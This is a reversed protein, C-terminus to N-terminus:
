TCGTPRNCVTPCRPMSSARATINWRSIPFSRSATPPASSCCWRCRSCTACGGLFAARQTKALTAVTMGIGLFGGAVAALSLWFFLSSLVAPRYIGALTAALGMGLLPYFLFKAALIELPSAPSLPQAPARRARAGRLETDAASLRLRLLARVRGHWDRHRRPFRAGQRRAGQPQDGAESDPFASPAPLRRCAGSFDDHLKSFRGTPAPTSLRNRGLNGAALNRRPRARCPGGRNGGSGRKMPRSRRRTAKQIGSTSTFPRGTEAELVQRLKSQGRASPICSSAM